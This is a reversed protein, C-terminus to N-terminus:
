LDPDLFVVLSKANSIIQCVFAWPFFFGFEEEELQMVEKGMKAVTIKLKTFAEQQNM